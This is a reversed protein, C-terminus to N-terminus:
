MIRAFIIGAITGVAGSILAAPLAHRTKTVHAAGFYVTLTYFITETSGVIVAAERGIQSDAGCKIITDRLMALSASGSFPRLIILPALEKDVGLKTIVPAIAGVASDLAGSARLVNIAALMAALPPLIEILQPLAQGAGEIFAKYVNVKKVLAYIILAIMLIPIILEAATKM